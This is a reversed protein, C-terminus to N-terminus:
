DIIRSRFSMDFDKHDSNKQSNESEILIMDDNSCDDFNREVKNNFRILFKEFWGKSAKFKNPFNSFSKAM